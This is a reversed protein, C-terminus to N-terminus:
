GSSSVSGTSLIAITEEVNSDLQDTNDCTDIGTSAGPHDPSTLVLQDWEPLTETDLQVPSYSPASFSVDSDSSNETENGDNEDIEDNMCWLLDLDCMSDCSNFDPDVEDNHDSPPTWGLKM